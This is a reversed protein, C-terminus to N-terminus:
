KMLFERVLEASRGAGGLRPALWAAFRARVEERPAPHRVQGALTAAVAEPTERVHLLGESILSDGGASDLTWAFHELHPGVCPIVGSALPELFNQGGLPALSGGVFVAQVLPYLAALEGFADWLIVSGAPAPNKPSLVSRPVFPIQERACAEAWAQARHLHRPAVIITAEPARERLTHLLPILAAEEEERVSALLIRQGGGTEQVPPLLAELEASAPNVGGGLGPAARDFKINPILTVREEGFLAAFRRADPQAMAAVRRPAVAEWFGPALRGLWRYGTLSKATLRGNLVLVPVDRRRCAMLLGPWLETEFLVLLKPAATRVARFMIAPHDLPFLAADVHLDPRTTKLRETMGRLVELGQRTWTTALVRLPEGDPRSPLREALEWVLYAEGGSAAQIWVDVPTIWREPTLRREFGEALRKHRRLFPRALRWALGYLRMLVIHGFTLNM